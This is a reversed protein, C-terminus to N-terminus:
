QMVVVVARHLRALQAGDYLGHHYGSGVIYGGGPIFIMVPANSALPWPAYINLKLCDEKGIFVRDVIHLEPCSDHFYSPPQTCDLTTNWPQKPVPAAFRLSDVPAEAYPVNFFSVVDGEASLSGRLTGAATVVTATSDAAALSLASFFIAYFPLRPPMHLHFLPPRCTKASHQQKQKAHLHPNLRRQRSSPRSPLARPPAKSTPMVGNIHWGSIPQLFICVLGTLSFIRETSLKRLFFCAIFPRLSLANSVAAVRRKWAIFITNVGNGNLSQHHHKHRRSALCDHADFATSKAHLTNSEDAYNPIHSM